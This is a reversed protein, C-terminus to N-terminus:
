LTVRLNAPYLDFVDAISVCYKGLGPRSPWVNYTSLDGALVHELMKHLRPFRSRQNHPALLNILGHTRSPRKLTVAEIGSLLGYISTEDFRYRRGYRYEINSLHAIKSHLILDFLTSVSSLGLIKAASGFSISDSTFYLMKGNLFPKKNGVQRVLPEWDLRDLWTREILFSNRRGAKQRVHPINGRRVERHLVSTHLGTLNQVHEISVYSSSENRCGTSYFWHRTGVSTNMKKYEIYETKLFDFCGKHKFRKIRHLIEAHDGGKNDAFSDYLRHLSAPWGEVLNAFRAMLDIADANRSTPRKSFSPSRSIGSVSMIDALSLNDFPGPSYIDQTFGSNTSTKRSLYQFFRHLEAPASLKPSRRLDFHCHHCHHISSNRWKLHEACSPCSARLLATHKPCLVWLALDWLGHSFNDEDLCEPCIKRNQFTLHWPPLAHGLLHVTDAEEGFFRYPFPYTSEAHFDSLRRISESLVKKLTWHKDRLFESPQRFGNLSSLRLIYGAQSEGLHPATRIIPTM